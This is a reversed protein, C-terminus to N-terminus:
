RSAIVMNLQVLINPFTTVNNRKKAESRSTLAAAYRFYTIHSTLM